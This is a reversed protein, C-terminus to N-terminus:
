AVAPRLVLLRRIALAALVPTVAYTGFLWAAASAVGAMGGPSTLDSLFGFPTGM